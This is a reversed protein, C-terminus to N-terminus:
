CQRSAPSPPRVSSKFKTLFDVNDDKVIKITM